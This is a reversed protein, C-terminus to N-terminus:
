LRTLVDSLTGSLLFLLWLVGLMSYIWVLRSSVRLHMFFLVVLLAKAFAIALTVVVNFPGMNIFIAGVTAALLALLGVYVELYTKVSISHEDM